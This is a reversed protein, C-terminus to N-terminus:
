RGSVASRELASAARGFADVFWLRKEIGGASIDASKEKKVTVNYFGNM